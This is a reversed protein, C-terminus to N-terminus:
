QSTGHSLDKWPIRDGPVGLRTLTRPADLTRMPAIATRTTFCSAGGSGGGL